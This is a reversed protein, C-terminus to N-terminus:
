QFLLAADGGVSLSFLPTKWVESQNLTVEWSVLSALAEVRLAGLWRPGLRESLTLRPGIQLTTGSDSHPVDVGFGRVYLGGVRTVLCGSLPGFLACGAASGAVVHQDFGSGGETEHHSPLSADAGLEFAVRGHRLGGFVRGEVVTRPALGFALTPGVGLLFESAARAESSPASAPRRADGPPAPATAPQPSAGTATSSGGTSAVEAPADARSEAEEALLQIQVAIAFSVSRGLAACDSSESDLEREGRLNGSADRWEIVARLGREAPEARAIVKHEAGARFPDYGLQDGIMTKFATESPCGLAADPQYDLEVYLKPDARAARSGLTVAVAVLM